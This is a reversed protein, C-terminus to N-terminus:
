SFCLEMVMESDFPLFIVKKKSIEGPSRQQFINGTDGIMLEPLQCRRPLFQCAFGVQVRRWGFWRCVWVWMYLLFEIKRLDFVCLGLYYCYFVWRQAEM